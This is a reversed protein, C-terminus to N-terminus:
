LKVPPFTSKQGRYRPLSGLPPLTQAKQFSRKLLYNSSFPYEKGKQFWIGLIRLNRRDRPGTNPTEQRTIPLTSTKLLPTAHDSLVSATHLTYYLALESSPDQSFSISHDLSPGSSSLSLPFYLISALYIIFSPTKHLLVPILSLLFLSSLMQSNSSEEGWFLRPWRLSGPFHGLQRTWGAPAVPKGSLERAGDPLPHRWAAVTQSFRVWESSDHCKCEPSEAGPVRRSSM